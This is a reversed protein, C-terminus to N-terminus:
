TPFYTAQEQKVKTKNLLFKSTEKSDVKQKKDKETLRRYIIFIYIYIYIYIYM